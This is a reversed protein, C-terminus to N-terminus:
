CLDGRKKHRIGHKMSIDVDKCAEINLDVHRINYAM